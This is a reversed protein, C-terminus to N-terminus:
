FLLKLKEKYLQVTLDSSRCLIEGDFHVWVPFSTKCHFCSAKQEEVYPTQLHKELKLVFILPFLLIRRIKYAACLNLLGDDDKADPTFSFGGGAFRHNMIECLLTRKYKLLKHNTRIKCSFTKMSIISLFANIAYIYRGMHVKNLPKKLPSTLASRIIDGDWGIGVSNIFLKKIEGKVLAPDEAHSVPDIRHSYNHFILEGLDISRRTKGEAIREALEPCAIINLARALDNASGGPLLGFQVNSFDQIGNLAENVTGDGGIVIIRVPEKRSSIKNTIMAVSTDKTSYHLEYDCDSFYPRAMEWVSLSHGNAAIPNIVIDFKMKDM